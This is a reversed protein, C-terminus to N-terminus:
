ARWATVEELDLGAREWEKILGAKKVGVEFHDWPLTEGLPRVRRTYFAPDGDWERLARRWDGGLSAAIEVFDAVRRDGRALLAQLGAERPNEHLVRITSLRRAVRKILDLKAELARHDEFAAWQFPTWPKPVFSSISLTLKGFPHGDPGPVQLRQLLRTALDAIAEVDEPTETPLGIMFYCKLNPIGYRRLLDCAAFLHEDTIPKRIVSRLRETGAEPAMTLTRHGGRALSAVLPETLSDARLSSISVEVGYEELVQMLDGIWPYDSVCAGVLGVRKSEKAIQAVSERLAELSRHRVPRYIQGELCFRCGRGCGKGVELLAMHGYEAKPTKLTSITEFRNVDALRRKAVIRPVGPERPAVEEITGDPAYRVDYRGPIYIGPLPTLAELFRRRSEPAREAGSERYAAIIEAVLEEGEGVAVFDMFPAVPEPNSFACVGGMMVVPHSADRAAARAPIGAMQLLRVVNIYDGEYTVSFGVLDFDSLPRLSELSFPAAGSRLYEDLDEPDPFFVRECVVDPLANLHAYITQFGLNSMGVAYTNPYVLAVSVRGGWDKRSVGEEGAVLAQVKRKLTWSM